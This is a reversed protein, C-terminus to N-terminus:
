QIGGFENSVENPLVEICDPIDDVELLCLLSVKLGLVLEVLYFYLGSSEELVPSDFCRQFYFLYPYFSHHSSGDIYCWTLAM